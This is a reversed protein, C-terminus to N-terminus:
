PALGRNHEELSEIEALVDARLNDFAQLEAETTYEDGALLDRLYIIREQARAATANYARIKRDYNRRGLSDVNFPDSKVRNRLLEVDEAILAAFLASDGLTARLNRFLEDSRQRQQTNLLPLLKESVSVYSQNGREAALRYWASALVQDLPVGKGTFHMYGIMYQAYKDGIPALDELYIRMAREYRGKEFLTNAKEQANLADSDPMSGPFSEGAASASVGLLVILLLITRVTDKQLHLM